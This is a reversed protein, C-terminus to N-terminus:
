RKSSTNRNKYAKSMELYHVKEDGRLPAGISYKSKKSEYNINGNSDKAMKNIQSCAMIVFNKVRDLSFDENSPYQFIPQGNLYLIVLPVYTIPYVTQESKYICEKNTSLNIIGFHCGSIYRPLQKFIPLFEKCYKCMNSYFFIVSFHNLSNCLVLDGSGNKHIFFDESSLSLLSM